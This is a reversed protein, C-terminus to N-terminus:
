FFFIIEGWTKKRGIEQRFINATTVASFLSFIPICSKLILRVRLFVASYIIHGNSATAYHNSLRVRLRSFRLEFRRGAMEFRQCNRESWLESLKIFSYRAVSLPHHKFSRISEWRLQSTTPIFLDALPHLTFHKSCDWPPSVAGYLFTNITSTTTILISNSIGSSM